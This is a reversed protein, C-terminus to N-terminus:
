GNESEEYNGETQSEGTFNMINMWQEAFTPDKEKTIGYGHRLSMPDKKDPIWSYNEDEEPEKRIQKIEGCERNWKGTIEAFVFGLGLCFPVIWLLNLIDVM